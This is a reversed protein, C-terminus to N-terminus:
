DNLLFASVFTWTAKVMSPKFFVLPCKTVGPSLSAIDLGSFVKAAYLVGLKNKKKKKLCPLIM